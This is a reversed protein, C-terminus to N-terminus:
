LRNGILTYKGRHQREGYYGIILPILFYFFWPLCSLFLISLVLSVTSDPWYSCVLIKYGKPRPIRWDQGYMAQLNMEPQAPIHMTHSSDPFSLEQTPLLWSELRCGGPDESDAKFGEDNCLINGDQQTYNSPIDIHSLGASLQERNKEHIEGYSFTYYTDMDIYYKMQQDYVRICPKHLYGDHGLLASISRSLFPCHISSILLLGLSVSLLLAIFINKSINKLFGNMQDMCKIDM